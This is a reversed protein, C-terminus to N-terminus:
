NVKFHTIQLGLQSIRLSDTLELVWNHLTKQGAILNGDLLLQRSCEKGTLSDLLQGFFGRNKRYSLTTQNVQIGNVLDILAKDSVPPIRKELQQIPVDILNQQSNPKLDFM